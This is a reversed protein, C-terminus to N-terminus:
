PAARADMGEAVTLLEEHAGGAALVRVGNRWLCITEEGLTTPVQGTACVGEDGLGAPESPLAYGDESELEDLYLDFADEAHEVTDFVLAMSLVAGGDGSFQRVQGDVFGPLGLFEATRDTIVIATRSDHGEVSSNFETGSPPQKASLVIDGANLMPGATSDPSDAPPADSGTTAGCAALVVALM